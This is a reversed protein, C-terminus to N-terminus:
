AYYYMIFIFLSFLSFLYLYGYGTWGGDVQVETGKEFRGPTRGVTSLM